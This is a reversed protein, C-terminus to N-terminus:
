TALVQAALAEIRGARADWTYTSALRFAAEGM